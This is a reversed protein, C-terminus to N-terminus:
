SLVWCYHASPRWGLQMVAAITAEAPGRTSTTSKGLLIQGVALAWSRRTERRDTPDLKAWTMVWMDLQEAVNRVGPDAVPGVLWAITTTLCAGKGGFQTARKINVRMGQTQTASAGNVQHGYAQQPAVGPMVLKLALRNRQVLAKTRIARKKAKGFM